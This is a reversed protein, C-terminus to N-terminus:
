VTVFSYVGVAAVFLGSLVEGYKEFPGLFVRQLSKLGLLCMIVYTAITSIAFVVAMGGLLGPGRTSASLFTPIGEVMPSSGLILLLSGRGTAAHDHAHLVAVDPDTTHFDSGDHTHWHVHELRDEHRHLHTHGHQTHGHQAENENLERWGRVAIWLGFAVLAIASAYSVAHAYRVALTAGVAWMLAGLILTTTVHGFGAV